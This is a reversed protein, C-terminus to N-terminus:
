GGKHHGLKMCFFLFFCHLTESINLSPGLVLSRVPTIVYSGRPYVPTSFIRQLNRSISSHINLPNMYHLVAAKALFLVTKSVTRPKATTEPNNIGSQYTSILLNYIACVDPPTAVKSSNIITM